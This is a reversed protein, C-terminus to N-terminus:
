HRCRSRPAATEVDIAVLHQLIRTYVSSMHGSDLVMYLRFSCWTWLTVVKGAIQAVQLTVLQSEKQVQSSFVAVHSTKADEARDIHVHDEVGIPDLMHEAAIVLVILSAGHM